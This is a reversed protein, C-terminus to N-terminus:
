SREKALNVRIERGNVERGDLTLAKKADEAKSFTVFGFGKSRKTERDKIIVIDEVHGFEGFITELEEIELRFPLNGVFLKNQSM